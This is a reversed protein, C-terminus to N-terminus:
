VIGVFFYASDSVTKDNTIFPNLQEFIEKVFIDDPGIVPYSSNQSLIM